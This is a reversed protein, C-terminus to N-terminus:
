RIRAAAFEQFWAAAKSYNVEVGGHGATYIAALDHQAEPVGEYAKAEVQKIVPPLASDPQIRDKLPRSTDIAAKM